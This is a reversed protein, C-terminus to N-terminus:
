KLWLQLLRVGYLVALLVLSVDIFLRYRRALESTRPVFLRAGVVLVVVAALVKM